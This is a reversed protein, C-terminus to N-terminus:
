LKILAQASFKARHSATERLNQPNFTAKVSALVKCDFDVIRDLHSKIKLDLAEKNEAVETLLGTALCWNSDRWDALLALENARSSGIKWELIPSIAFPGIGVALESLKVSTEKVGVAIDAAALLGVGGGVARGQAAIIVPQPIERLLATVVGFLSFFEEAASQTKLQKMEDFSAGACFTSGLSSLSLVRCGSNKSVAEIESLLKKLLASDLANAKESSFIIEGVGNKVQSQVQGQM